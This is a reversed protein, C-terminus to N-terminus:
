DMSSWIVGSQVVDSEEERWEGSAVAQSKVVELHRGCSAPAGEERRGAGEEERRGGEKSGGGERGGPRM